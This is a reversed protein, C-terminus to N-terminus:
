YEISRARKERSSRCPVFQSTPVMQIINRAPVYERHCTTQCRSPNKHKQCLLMNTSVLDTVVLPTVQKPVINYKRVIKYLQPQEIQTHELIRKYPNPTRVVDVVTPEKYYIDRSPDSYYGSGCSSRYGDLNVKPKQNGIQSIEASYGAALSSSYGASYSSPNYQISEYPNKMNMVQYLSDVDAPFREGFPVNPNRYSQCCDCFGKRQCCPCGGVWITDLYRRPEQFIPYSVLLKPKQGCKQCHSPVLSKNLWGEDIFHQEPGAESYWADTYEPYHPMSPLLVPKKEYTPAIMIIDNKDVHPILIPMEKSVPYVSSPQERNIQPLSIPKEEVVPYPSSPNKNHIDGLVIPKEETTSPHRGEDNKRHFSSTSDKDSASTSEYKHIVEKKEDRQISDSSIWVPTNKKFNYENVAPIDIRKEEEDPSQKIKSQKSDSPIWVPVDKGINDKSSNSLNIPREEEAPTRHIVSQSDSPVQVSFDNKFNEENAAPLNLPKEEEVPVRSIQPQKSDSPIWVSGDKRTYEKNNELMNFRKVNLNFHIPREQGSSHRRIESQHFKLPIWVQGDKVIYKKLVDSLDTPKEDKTPFHGNKFQEADSPIWIPVNKEIHEKSTHLLNIPREEEVSHSNILPQTPIGFDERNASSLDLHRQKEIWGSSKKVAPVHSIETQKSDSPIWISGDKRSHEKNPVPLNLPKEEEATNRRIVIPREREDKYHRISSQDPKSSIWVPFDNEVYEKNDVQLNFPREEHVTEFRSIPKKTESPIWIYEPKVNLPKEEGASTGIIGSQNSDSPIWVPVNEATYKKPAGKLDMPREETATNRIMDINQSDSPIRVPVNNKMYEKIPKFDNPKEVRSIQPQESNSPMWIHDRTPEHSVDSKESDSPIWIPANKGVYKKTIATLDIPKEEESPNRSIDPQISDSPIWVYEKRVPALRIDSEEVPNSRIENTNSAEKNEEVQYPDRPIHSKKTCKKCNAKPIDDDSLDEVPYIKPPNENTLVYENRGKKELFDDEKSISQDKSTKSENAPLWQGNFLEYSCPRQPYYSGPYYYPPPPVFPYNYPSPPPFYPHTPYPLYNPSFRMDNHLLHHNPDHHSPKIHFHSKPKANDSSDIRNKGHIDDGGFRLMVQANAVSKPHNAFQQEENNESEVQSTHTPDFNNRELIEFHDFNVRSFDKPTRFVQSLNLDSDDKEATARIICVVLFWLLIKEFDYM